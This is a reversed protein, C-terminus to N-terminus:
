RQSVVFVRNQQTKFDLYNGVATCWGTPACSVSAISAQNGTNLTALGPVQTATGWRGRRETVLFAHRHQTGGTTYWGGAACEAASCSLSDVTALGATNLAATGPVRMAKGWRGHVETAVWAQQFDHQRNNEYTGGAACSGPGTCSVQTVAAQGGTNLAVLGPMLQARGWVGHREAAVFVQFRDSADKYSGGATCEGVAVCAVSNVGADRRGALRSLGPVPRAQGWRWNQESVLFASGTGALCSGAAPCSISTVPGRGAVQQAPGWVGGKETVVFAGGPTPTNFGERLGGAACNGAAAPCSIALMAAAQGSVAHVQGWEGGRESAVLARTQSTAADQYDGAVACNGASSCSVHSGDGDMQTGGAVGGSGVVTADGPVAAAKGWRGAHQSAVFVLFNEGGDVYGGGAACEGRAPCAVSDIGTGVYSKPPAQQSMTETGPLQRARGWGGPAAAGHVAAATLRDADAASGATTGCATVVACPVLALWAAARRSPVLAAPLRSWWRM